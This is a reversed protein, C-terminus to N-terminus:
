QGAVPNTYAAMLENSLEAVEASLRQKDAILASKEARGKELAAAVDRLREGMLDPATASVAPREAELGTPPETVPTAAAATEAPAPPPSTLEQLRKQATDREYNIKQLQNEMEAIMGTHQPSHEAAPPPAPPPYFARYLLPIAVHWITGCLFAGTAVESGTLFTDWQLDDVPLLWGNVLGCLGTLASGSGITAGGLMSALFIYGGLLLYPNEWVGAITESTVMMLLYSDLLAFLVNNLLTERAPREPLIALLLTGAFWFLTVLLFALVSLTPAHFARTILLLLLGGFTTIRLYTFPNHRM